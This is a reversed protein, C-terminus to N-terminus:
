VSLPRPEASVAMAMWTMGQSMAVIRSAQSTALRWLGHCAIVPKSLSPCAVVPALSRCQAWATAIVHQCSIIRVSHRVPPAGYTRGFPPAYQATAIIHMLNPYKQHIVHKMINAICHLQSLVQRAFSSEWDQM